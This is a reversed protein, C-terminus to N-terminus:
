DIAPNAALETWAAVTRPVALVLLAIGLCLTSFAAVIRPL